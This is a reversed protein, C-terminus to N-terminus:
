PDFLFAIGTLTAVQKVVTQIDANEFTFPGPTDVVAASTAPVFLLGLLFFHRVWRMPRVKSETALARPNRGRSLEPSFASPERNYTMTGMRRRVLVLSETHRTRESRQRMSRVVSDGM